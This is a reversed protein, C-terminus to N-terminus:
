IGEDDNTNSPDRKHDDLKKSFKNNGLDVINKDIKSQGFKVRKVVSAKHKEDRARQKRDQKLNIIDRM